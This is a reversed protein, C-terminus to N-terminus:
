LLDAPLTYDCFGVDSCGADVLVLVPRGPYETALGSEPLSAILASRREEERSEPVL